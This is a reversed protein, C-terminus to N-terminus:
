YADSSIIEAGQITSLARYIPMAITDKVWHVSGDVFLFNAGGPHFSRFNTSHHPGGRYSPTCNFTDLVAHVSDTVPMKNLREVTSCENGSYVFGEAVWGPQSHGGVLWFHVSLGNPYPTTCGVGDCIPFGGAAEGLLFTNSTGDTVQTIKRFSNFGFMGSENTVPAPGYGASMCMADNLGKSLGYSDSGFTSGVPLGWSDFFAYHYPSPGTDSPCLFMSLSMTAVTSSVYIWPQNPDLLDQVNKQELYPLIAALPSGIGTPVDPSGAIYTLASPFRSIADHYGHMALGLQKLNNMCQARRAAERASQVAPLLLGVLVAIIAIVVLLEILTFAKKQSKNM